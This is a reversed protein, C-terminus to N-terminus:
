EEGGTGTGFGGGGGAINGGPVTVRQGQNRSDLEAQIAKIESAVEDLLAFRIPVPLPPLPQYSAGTARDGFAEGFMSGFM